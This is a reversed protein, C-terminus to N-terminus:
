NGFVMFVTVAISLIILGAIIYMFRKQVSKEKQIEKLNNSANLVFVEDHHEIGTDESYLKLLHAYELRLERSITRLFGKLYVEGPLTDFEGKEIADLYLQRIKTEEHLAELSMSKEERQQKLYSGLKSM